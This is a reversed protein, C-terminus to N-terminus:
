DAAKVSIRIKQPYAGSNISFVDKSLYIGSAMAPDKNVPKYLVSHKKESDFEFTDEGILIKKAM